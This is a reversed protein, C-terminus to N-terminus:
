FPEYCYYCSAAYSNKPPFLTCWDMYSSPTDDKKEETEAKRKKDTLRDIEEGQSGLAQILNVFVGIFEVFNSELVYEDHEHLLIETNRMPFVRLCLDGVSM